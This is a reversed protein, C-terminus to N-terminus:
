TRAQHLRELSDRVLSLSQKDEYKEFIAEAQLYLNDAEDFKRRGEAIMGLHHLTIAKKYEDNLKEKIKLSKKYWDEAEDFQRREYAIMGLEHFTSAKRYEDNLKESIKLSKRYCAEAEDLKRRDYAIIGLQHLTGAQGYEDDLKKSIELSKQYRCEAKDLKRRDYAIIGLQHLTGAQGYEDNLKESIRLSKQYRDEAKNLQHREQAIGGLNHLTQAQGHQDKLQQRIELCKKYWEEAKNLQHREQAIRGLQHLTGAQGYKNRLKKSIELSKKYWEEAKNFKRRHQLIIGLNHWLSACLAEAGTLPTGQNDTARREIYSNLLESESRRTQKGLMEAMSSFIREVADWMKHQCGLHIAYRLNQEELRMFPMIQETNTRLQQQLSQSLNGSVNVFRQELWKIDKAYTTQLVEHFFWPLAPHVDYSHSGIKHLLGIESTEDLIKTWAASDLGKLLEPASEDDCILSLTKANVFGQFMGLVGLRRRLLEDLRGLRYELSATLSYQRGQEKDDKSLKATGKKLAALLDEPEVHALEPLIVQIALPNGQLYDLLEKYPKLRQRDVGARDLVKGALEIADRQNLGFLRIPQYCRGLWKEDRRSTLIVKTAGGGLSHLFDKLEEQEEKRWKSPTGKPFGAVPEFNDWIMLCPVQRLISVALQRRQPSDLLHWELGSEKKIVERFVAGIQECVHALTTYSEFTSFFIPGDLAGTEAWWRAFGVATTTKGVGAMAQLLVITEREFAKELKWIDTDRGIFGYDPQEPLDIERGAVTQEGKILSVDLHLKTKSPKFLQVKGSQFLVPVIWDQLSIPGIPSEREDRAALAERAVTVARALTQGNLLSEYVGTMFQVATHVYVSYAMAVVGLAGTKILEGGVSPYLIYPDTMGSQCANLMVVSIGKGSLLKGLQAGSVLRKGGGTKEFVLQGPSGKESLFARYDINRQSPFVGHGDFHLVHYFHPKEALVRQLQEYTPPRLLEIKIRDQHKRAIEMLPRAVSQFLVDKEGAPRSIVMLVNVRSKDKRVPQLPLSTGPQSRVFGSTKQALYGYAPDYMLEWPLSWGAPHGAQIIIHCENPDKMARDYFRIAAQEQDKENHFIAAYLEAGLDSIVKEARKARERYAGYPYMLYEELYWQILKRDERSIKIRFPFRDTEQLGDKSRYLIQYTPSKGHYYRVILENM